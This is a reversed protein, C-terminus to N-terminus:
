PRLVFEPVSEWDKAKQEREQSTKPFLTMLEEILRFVEDRPMGPRIHGAWWTARKKEIGTQPPFAM